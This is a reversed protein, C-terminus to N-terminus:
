DWLSQYYKGFLEYGEQIRDNHKKMGAYDCVSTHLPGYVLATYNNGETPAAWQLDTVGTYYQDEWNDDLTQEFSWIMKDLTKSWIEYGADKKLQFGEAVFSAQPSYEQEDVFESPYGNKSAQLQKLMPIIILALTNNMSWIDFSDIHIKVRRKRKEHIWDCTNTVWEPMKAGIEYCRDESVGIYQLLDALQYPGFWNIYPGIKIKM